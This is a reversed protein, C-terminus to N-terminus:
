RSIGERQSAGDRLKVALETRNRAGLKKFLNSLHREVTKQSLFLTGAVERNSAGEAVLRAVELERDTLAGDTPRRRWPRAGLARMGQHAAAVYFGAGLEEAERAVQEFVELARAREFSALAHGLDLRTVLSGHRLGVQEAEAVSREFCEEWEDGGAAASLLGAVRWRRVRSFPLPPPAHADWRDVRAQADEMRGMRAFGEAAALQFDWGCRDCHAAEVDADGIEIWRVVEAAADEGRVRGLWECILHDLILQDHVATCVDNRTVALADVAGRWDGRAFRILNAAWSVGWRAQSRDIRQALDRVADVAAEAADLRVLDFRTTALRIAAFVAQRPFGGRQAEHFVGEIRREAEVLRGLWTLSVAADFEASLYDQEDLGRTIAVIREEIDSMEQTRAEYMALLAQAHLVAILTRRGREDSADDLGLRNATRQSEAVLLRAREDKPDGTALASAEQVDLELALLPDDFPVERAQAVLRVGDITSDTRLASRSAALLASAREVGTALDAARTWLRVALAHEGVEAALSALGRFFTHREAIPADAAAEVAVLRNLGEVGLLRRRPAEVLRRLPASTDLGAAQGHELASLLELLDEGAHQEFWTALTTHLRLTTQRPVQGLAAERILDHALGVEPTGAVALGNAVLTGVAADVRESPWGEIEAIDPTVLPRAAVALLAIVEAADTGASRLRSTVLQTADAGPADGRALAEIWFPNGAARSWLREAAARDLEPALQTALEVGDDRELAELHIPEAEALQPEPPRSAALVALGHGTDGAARILYDCLALSLPDVWQVDDLVLLAPAQPALARHAAEFVRIPEMPGVGGFLVAELQEGHPGSALARLLASAAALPVEREPEYGSVRFLPRLETADVAEAVLRTKGTGPDGVVVAVAVDGASAAAVTQGLRALEDARGVFGGM